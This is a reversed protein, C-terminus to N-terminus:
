VVSKRDRADLLVLNHPLYNAVMVFRGDHSVALNRTNIGARIEHTYTLNYIDFKSIWGDRSAFYVYRGGESYKPGGHLAFRTPFRFIPEFKDGDLLTAHHDGLEVVIFLNEMDAQFKPTDPLSGPKHTEIRSAKIETLGWTPIEALPSYIYDSLAKINEESLLAKFGQMQTAPRGESIVKISAAPKLRGLNEPLLAPGQGGLRDAGHCQACHQQYLAQIDGSSLAYGPILLLCLCLRILANWNM